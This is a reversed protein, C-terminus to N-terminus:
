SYFSLFAPIMIIALVILLMLIMPLLLKTAAEEGLIRARRKRDEWAQESERELTQLLGQNGKKLNQVLLTALTKYHIQGCRRGFRYYAEGESIGSDIEQCTLLMEEYAYREKGPIRSQKYDLATKRFARSTSLGAEILLSLKMVLGPYDLEMQERRKQLCREKERDAAVLIGAAGALCFVSLLMGQTNYPHSWFLRKGSLTDPM